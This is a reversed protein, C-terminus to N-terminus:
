RIERASSVAPPSLSTWRLCALGGRGGCSVLLPAVALEPGCAPGDCEVPCPSAAASSSSSLFELRWACSM